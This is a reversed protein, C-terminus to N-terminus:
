YVELYVISYKGVNIRRLIYLISYKGVNIRRLIPLKLKVYKIIKYKGKGQCQYCKLPVPPDCNDGECCSVVCNTANKYRKGLEFGDKLCDITGVCFTKLVCQMVVKKVGNQM